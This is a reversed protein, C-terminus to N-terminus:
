YAASQIFCWSFDSEGTTVNSSVAYDSDAAETYARVRYSYTTNDPLGGDSYTTVDAGVTTVQVYRDGTEPRREIKFGLEDSSNDTWSLDITDDDELVASLESPAVPPEGGIFAGLGYAESIELDDILAVTRGAIDIKSVSGDTQNLVYAFDGNKPCAVGLPKLGVDYDELFEQSDADVVTVSNDLSNTVYVYGGDSGVAVGWPGDGTDITKVLTHDGTKYIAVTDADLLAVYLYAGDPTLALGLPGDGVDTITQVEDDTIVSITGESHNSVYVKPTEDIEDYYAAVGWPGDGVPITETVTFSPIYIVSVTGDGYNAVYAYNGQSEIAVGRPDDGVPRQVQASGSTFSDTRVITVSDESPQTVVLYDGKPSVAAGYPDDEFAVASSTEDETNMRTVNGDGSGPIYAYTEAEVQGAPFIAFYALSLIFLVNRIM